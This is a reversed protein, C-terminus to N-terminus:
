AAARRIPLCAPLCVPLCAPLCALLCATCRGVVNRRVPVLSKPCCRGAHHTVSTSVFLLARTSTGVM